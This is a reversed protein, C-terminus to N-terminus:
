SVDRQRPQKSCTTLSIEFGEISIFTTCASHQVEKSSLKYICTSDHSKRGEKLKQLVGREDKSVEM